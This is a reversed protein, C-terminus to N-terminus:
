TDPQSTSVILRFNDAGIVKLLAGTEIYGSQCFAEYRQGSVLIYGSPSLPTIAQASQGILAETEKGYAASDGTIQEHLFARRGIKTKPLVKFELWLLAAGVAIASGSIALGGNRGFEIFSLVCGIIALVGGISGLIGGPIIVEILIFALGLAFLIIIATTM